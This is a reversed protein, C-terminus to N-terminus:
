KITLNDFIEQVDDDDLLLEKLKKYSEVDEKKPSETQQPEYTLESSQIIAGTQSIAKSIKELDQPQTTIILKEKETKIEEAGADIATLELSEREEPTIKSIIRGIKNFLFAVSGEPVFKGNNKKLTTKINTLTRNKNDTTATILMAINGAGYAEYIVEELRVGEKLQGIGRKIAREVNEKPMNAGRAKEMAFRLRINTQTDGGAEQAAITIESAIKTFVKARKTDEIAKKHKIGAWHSHGSM